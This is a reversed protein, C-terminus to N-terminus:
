VFCCNNIEWINFIVPTEKPVPKGDIFSGQIAKDPLVDTTNRTNRITGFTPATPRGFM